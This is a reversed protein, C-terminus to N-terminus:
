EDLYGVTKAINHPAPEKIHEIMKIMDTIFTVFIHTAFAARKNKIIERM